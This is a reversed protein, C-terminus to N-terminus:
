ASEIFLFLILNETPELDLIDLTILCVYWDSKLSYSRSSLFRAKWHLSKNM